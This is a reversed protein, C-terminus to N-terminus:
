HLLLSKKTINFQTFPFSYGILVILLLLCGTLWLNIPIFANYLPFILYSVLFVVFLIRYDLSLASHGFFFNRM